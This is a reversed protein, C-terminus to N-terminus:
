IRSHQQRFSAVPTNTRAEQFPGQHLGIDSKEQSKDQSFQKSSDTVCLKQSGRSPSPAHLFPWAPCWPWSKGGSTTNRLMTLKRTQPFLSELPHSQQKRGPQRWTSPFAKGWFSPKQLTPLHSLVPIRTASGEAIEGSSSQLRSKEGEVPAWPSHAAHAIKNM